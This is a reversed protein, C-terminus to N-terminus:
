KRAASIPPTQLSVNWFGDERQCKVLAACMDQLDKEYEKRHPDDAPIEDLEWSLPSSM